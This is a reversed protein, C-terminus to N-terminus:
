KRVAKGADRAAEIARAGKTTLYYCSANSRVHHTDELVKAAAYLNADLDLWSSGPKGAVVELFRLQTRTLAPTLPKTNPLM